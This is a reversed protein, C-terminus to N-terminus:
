SICECGEMRLHALVGHGHNNQEVVLLAQNYSNGLEILKMALERPPFHGHLEACQMGDREIVEACSYDGESGGGAPDVGIFYQKGGAASAM